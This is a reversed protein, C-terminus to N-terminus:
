APRPELGRRPGGVVPARRAAIASWSGFLVLAVVLGLAFGLAAWGFAPLGDGVGRTFGHGAARSLAFVHEELCRARDPADRCPVLAGELQATWAEIAAATVRQTTAALSRGLPGEGDPGLARELQRTLVATATGTVQAAVQRLEAAQQPESLQQLSGAVAAQAAKHAAPIGPTEERKRAQEEVAELAGRTAQRSIPEVCGALCAATAM